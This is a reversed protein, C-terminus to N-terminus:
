KKGQATKLAKSLRSKLRGAVNRHIVGKAATKDLKKVLTRLETEGTKVDNAAFAERVKRLQTKIVSKAARNRGRRVESQRHRKKASETNPM